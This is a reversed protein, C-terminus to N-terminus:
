WLFRVCITVVAIITLNDLGKDFLFEAITALSSTLLIMFVVYINSKSYGIYNLYMAMISVSSVFMMLSGIISKDKNNAIHIKNYGFKSGIIAASADGFGLVLMAIAGMNFKIVGQYYLIVLVAMSLPFYILGMNRSVDTTFNLKEALNPNFAVISNLVIFVIPLVLAMAMSNIIYLTFWWLSVGIHIIKRTTEKSFVNYRALILGTIIVIFMYISSYILPLLKSIMLM